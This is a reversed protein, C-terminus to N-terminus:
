FYIRWLSTILFATNTSSNARHQFKPNASPHQSNYIRDADFSTVALPVYKRQLETFYNLM